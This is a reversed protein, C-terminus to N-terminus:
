IEFFASNLQTVEFTINPSAGMTMQSGNGYKIICPGAAAQAASITFYAISTTSIVGTTGAVPANYLYTGTAFPWEGLTGATMASCNASLSIFAATTYTTSAFSVYVSVKFNGILGPPFTVNGFGTQTAIIGGASTFASTMAAFSYGAQPSFNYGDGLFSYVSAVALPNVATPAVSQINLYFNNQNDIQIGTPKYLLIDYTVWLEGAVYPTAAGGSTAINLTCLDYFKPDQSGTLATSRIYQINLPKEKPSCEIPFLINDSPRGDVSFESNLMTLKTNYAPLDARYQAAMTVSGLAPSTVTSLSSSTPVYDFVMGAIDYEQFNQAVQSLWPFLPSLGPNVAYQTISFTPTMSVDGIYERHKIRITESSGHMTPVQGGMITNRNVSYDGWGLIDKFLTKGATWLSDGLVAGPNQQKKVKPKKPKQKKPPVIAVVQPQPARRPQNNNRRRFTTKPPM